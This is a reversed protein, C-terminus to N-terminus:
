SSPDGQEGEPTRQPPGTARSRHRGPAIGLSSLLRADAVDIRYVPETEVADGDVHLRLTAGGTELEGDESCAVNAELMMIARWGDDHLEELCARIEDSKVVSAHVAKGLKRLLQHLRENRSEEM